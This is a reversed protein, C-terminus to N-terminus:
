NQQPYIGELAIIYNLAISPMINDHPQGGTTFSIAAANMVANASAGPIYEQLTSQTGLFNNTPDTSDAAGSNSLAAHSHAPIQGPSLTVTEVGAQQGMIYTSLGPGQGQHIPIRSRLDPLAFTTQGDGGYTTGILSFLADNEAIALLSGDCTAWGVPAFTGGFLIVNGIFPDQM